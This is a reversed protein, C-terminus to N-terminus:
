TRRLADVISKISKIFGSVLMGLLQPFFLLIIVATIIPWFLYSLFQISFGPLLSGFFNSISGGIKTVTSLGEFSIPKPAVFDIYKNRKLKWEGVVFVHILLKADIQDAFVQKKSFLGGEEHWTGFNPFTIVAFKPIDFLNPNLSGTDTTLEEINRELSQPKTLISDKDRLGKNGREPLGELTNSLALAGGKELYVDAEGTGKRLLNKSKNLYIVEVAAIGLHLKGKNFGSDNQADNEIYWSSTKPIFKLAIDLAGYRYNDREDRMDKVKQGTIPNHLNEDISIDQNKMDAPRTSISLDFELLWTEMRIKTPGGSVKTTWTQTDIPKASSLALNLPKSIQYSNLPTKLFENLNFATPETLSGVINPFGRDPLDPDFDLRNCNFHSRGYFPKLVARNKTSSFTKNRWILSDFHVEVGQYASVQCGSESSLQNFSAGLQSSSTIKFRAKNETNDYVIQDRDKIIQKKISLNEKLYVNNQEVKNELNLFLNELNEYATMVNNKDNIYHTTVLSLSIIIIIATVKIFINM